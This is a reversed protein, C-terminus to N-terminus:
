QCALCGDESFSNLTEAAAQYVVGDGNLNEAQLDHQIRCYYLSKVGLQWAMFHAKNLRERDTRADYFLNVSQSQCIFPQRDAAHQVIWLPDIEYGTAFVAKEYDSLCNLHQASGLVPVIRGDPLQKLHYRISEWVEPTNFGKSELLAELYKNKVLHNGANTKAVFANGSWPEIAPSTTGCITSISATPAIAFINSNRAMFGFDAADPCPGKELALEYSAQKGQENLSKFIKKNWSVAMASEFPVLKSQLFSHWGMVGLGISRERQASYVAKSLEPPATDIFEQLVNDLFRVAHAVLPTDKWQEYTELNLSGLCCVATREHNTPLTIESCLNSTKVELRALKHWEPIAENVTDIFLLYPEGGSGARAELIGEWLTRASVTRVAEQRRSDILRWPGDAAVAQMFADPIVVGHHFGVSTCRRDRDGGSVAKRIAIFEEIEVHWVPLYAAVSGRRTGSQPFANIVAEEVKLYPVVGTAKGGRSIPSGVPRIDGWYSGVGGGLSSLMANETFHEMLGQRTDAPHTLYCSIPLGKGPVGGNALVPTAPSFWHRSMADYMFQAHEASDGYHSAIRAYLDQPTEGPQLYGGQLKALGFPTILDDRAPDTNIEYKM